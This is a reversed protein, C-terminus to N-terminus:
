DEEQANFLCENPKKDERLRVFRAHRPKGSAYRENFAVQVVLPYTASTFWEREADSFGIGLWGCDIEKETKADIQVIHLDGMRKEHRRGQKGMRLRDAIFDDEFLPKWKWAGKLRPPREINGDLRFEGPKEAHYLVLGEWRNKVVVAQAEELPMRLVPVAFVCLPNSPRTNGGLYKGIVELRESYPRETMLMNNLAIIDFVMYSVGGNARQFAHANQPSSKAVKGMMELSDSGDKDVIMEGALLTGVPFKLAGVRAAIHPYLETVENVGRTYIRIGKASIAVFHCYGDRKRTIILNGEREIRAITEPPATNQPKSAVFKPDLPNLSFPLRKGSM